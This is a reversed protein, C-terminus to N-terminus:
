PCVLVPVDSALLVQETQSGLVLRKLGHKGHTAMVILDCGHRDAFEVIARSPSTHETEAASCRVGMGIALAEVEGLHTAHIRQAEVARDIEAVAAEGGRHAHSPASRTVHLVSLTAGCRRALEVAVRAARLSLPTCDTPLLIHKFM